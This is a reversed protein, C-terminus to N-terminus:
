FVLWSKRFNNINLEKELSPIRQLRIETALQFQGLTQVIKIHVIQSLQLTIVSHATPFKFALYLDRILLLLETVFMAIKIGSM